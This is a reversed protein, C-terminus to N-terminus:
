SLKVVFSKYEKPFYVFQRISKFRLAIANIRANPISRKEDAEIIITSTASPFQIIIGREDGGAWGSTETINGSVFRVYPVVTLM